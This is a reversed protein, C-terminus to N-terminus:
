GSKKKNKKVAANEMQVKQKAKEKRIEKRCESCENPESQVWFKLKEYWYVQEKATFVFESKCRKCKRSEDFYALYPEHDCFKQLWPKGKLAKGSRICNDCAWSLQRKRAASIAWGQLPNYPHAKKSVTTLDAETLWGALSILQMKQCCPCYIREESEYKSKRKM